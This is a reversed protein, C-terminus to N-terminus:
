ERARDTTHTTTSVHDGLTPETESPSENAAPPGIGNEAPRPNAFRCRLLGLYSLTEFALLGIFFGALGFVVHAPLITLVWGAGARNYWTRLMAHGVFAGIVALAGAVIWGYSAHATVARAIGPTVRGGRRNGFYRLGAREIGTLARLAVYAIPTVLLLTGLLGPLSVREDVFVRDIRPEAFAGAVLVAAIGANVRLLWVADRPGVSVRDFTERWRVLSLGTLVWYRVSPSMQWHSGTRFRPLSQAIPKGCEPCAPEHRVDDLPYGCRGCLLADPDPREAAM